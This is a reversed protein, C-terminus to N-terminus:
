RSARRRIVDLQSRAEPIPRGAQKTGERLQAFRDIIQDFGLGEDALLCGIVTGTRGVGGWCHVYVGGRESSDQIADVIEDYGGDERVHMDPIPFELREVDLGRAEAAANLRPGYPELGDSPTTLDVFTRIGADLLVAIKDEAKDPGLAGPYEGAMLQGPHVWWGHVLQDFPWPVFAEAGFLARALSEIREVRAIKQRWADPINSAGWRAGALQGAIAATTDADDGLNAARLVATRFDDAGGVAWLAAELADVCYGTGRIAPPMNVRWSGNLVAAVTAHLDGGPWSEPATAEVFSAGNIMSAVMAAMVRCVDVPRVAPHTTRSSEAGRAAAEAPDAHWHIPVPALRMLSGNAASEQDINPDIPDGTTAFRHLQTSTTVGIDFCHGNSSLYGHDKWRLYRRLQDSLDMGGRDVISEALCLAMSTDDTWQGATLRFPGGGVMDDIPEFTGPRQFELTTGVADGAALGVLAGIARDLEGM